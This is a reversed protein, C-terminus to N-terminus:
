IRRNRFVPKDRVQLSSVCCVSLEHGSMCLAGGHPPAVAQREHDSLKCWCFAAAKYNNFGDVVRFHARKHKRPPRPLKRMRVLGAYVEERDYEM